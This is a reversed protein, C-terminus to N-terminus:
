QFLLTDFVRDAKERAADEGRTSGVFLSWAHFQGTVPDKRGFVFQQFHHLGGLKPSDLPFSFLAGEMDSRRAPRYAVQGAKGGTTKELGQILEEGAIRPKFTVGPGFAFHYVLVSDGGADLYHYDVEQIGPIKLPAVEKEKLDDELLLRLPTSGVKRYAPAAPAPKPRDGPNGQRLQLVASIIVLGVFSLLLWGWGMWTRAPKHDGPRNRFLWIWPTIMWAMAFAITLANVPQERFTVGMAIVCCAGIFGTAGLSLRRGAEERSRLLLLIGPLLLLPIVVLGGCRSESKIMSSGLSLTGMALHFVAAPVIGPRRPVDPDPMTGPLGSGPPPLPAPDPGEWDATDFASALPKWAGDSGAERVLTAPGVRGTRFHARLDEAAPVEWEQGDGTIIRYPGEM